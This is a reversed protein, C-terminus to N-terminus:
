PRTTSRVIKDYDWGTHEIIADYVAWKHEDVCTGMFIINKYKMSKAIAHLTHHLRQADEDCKCIVMDFREENYVVLKNRLTIARRLNIQNNYNFLIAGVADIEKRESKHNYGYMWFKEELNYKEKHLVIYKDFIIEGDNKNNDSLEEVLCLYYQVPFIGDKNIYRKSFKVTDNKKLIRKFEEYMERKSRGLKVKKAVKIHNIIIIRYSM